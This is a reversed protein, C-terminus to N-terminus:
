KSFPPRLDRLRFDVQKESEKLRVRYLEGDNEYGTLKNADDEIVAIITGHEGHLDFDPDSENPIDVRVEDGPEFAPM